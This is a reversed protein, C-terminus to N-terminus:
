WVFLGSWFHGRRGRHLDSKARLSLPWDSRAKTDARDPRADGAGGACFPCIFGCTRASRRHDIYRRPHPNSRRRFFSASIGVAHGVLPRLRGAGVACHRLVSRLGLCCNSEVNRVGVVRCSYSVLDSEAELMSRPEVILQAPRRTRKVESRIKLSLEPLPITRGHERGLWRYGPWLCGSLSCAMDWSRLGTVTMPM